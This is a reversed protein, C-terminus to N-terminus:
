AAQLARSGHPARMLYISNHTCTLMCSLMTYVRLVFYTVPGSCGINIVILIPCASKIEINKEIYFISKLARPTIKRYQNTQQTQFALWFDIYFDIYFDINKWHKGKDGRERKSGLCQLM